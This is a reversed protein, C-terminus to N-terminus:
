ALTRSKPPVLINGNMDQVLEQVERLEGPAYEFDHHFRLDKGTLAAQLISLTDSDPSVLIINEGYYQTELKSLLQRVRVFVDETSENPTGDEASSPRWDSDKSDNEVLTRHVEEAPKGDLIGVGRADLFSFEPVIQERRVRLNSALIEATEFSSITMSPWIWANTELGAKSLVRSAHIAQNIGNPTLGHMAISLKNVPNSNVIRKGNSATECARMFYYKNTLPEHLPFQRLGPFAATRQPEDLMTSGILSASLVSLFDRRSFSFSCKPITRNSKPKTRSSNTRLPLKSRLESSKFGHSSSVFATNADGKNM